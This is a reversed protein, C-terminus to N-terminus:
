LGILRPTWTIPLRTDSNTFQLTVTSQGPGIAGIRQFGAPTVASCSTVGTGSALVANSSLNDVLVSVNQLTASSTNTVTVTQSWTQTGINPRLSGMSVTAQSTLNPVASCDTTHVLISAYRSFGAQNTVQLPADYLRGIAGSLAMDARVIGASVRLNALSLPPFVDSANVTVPAGAVVTLNDAPTQSDAVQAIPMGTYTGAGLWLEMAKVAPIHDTCLLQQDVRAVAAQNNVLWTLDTGAPFVVTLVNRHVGPAFVSPQFRNSPLPIFQNLATGATFTLQTPAVNFYGFHAVAAGTGTTDVCDLLPLVQAHAAASGALVAM